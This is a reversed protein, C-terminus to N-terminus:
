VWSRAPAAGISRGAVVRPPRTDTLMATTWGAVGLTAGDERSSHGAALPCKHLGAQVPPPAAPMMPAHRASCGVGQNVRQGVAQDLDPRGIVLGDHIGVLM